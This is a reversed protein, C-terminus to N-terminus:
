HPEHGAASLPLLILEGLQREERQDRAQRARQKGVKSRLSAEARYSFSYL